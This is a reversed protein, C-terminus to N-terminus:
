KKETGKFAKEASRTNIVSTINQGQTKFFGRLPRNPGIEIVNKDALLQMNDRWKVSGSLQKALGQLLEDKNAQYFRGLYNSAVKPLQAEDISSEFSQIYSLYEAEIPAMWRSHFASSVALPVARFAQKEFTKTLSQVLADVSSKEGSVVVQQSSNDNAVDVGFQGAIDSIVQQPIADMIIASMAGNNTANSMLQGRKIVMNLAVDFPLVGAAVLAAYEGLSHGAFFDARWHFRNNLAQYMAIEAVLLCPQTYETQHIRDNEEHCLEFVDFDLIENAQTFVQKSEIFSLCFDKAMGIKQAGQGPFVAANYTM